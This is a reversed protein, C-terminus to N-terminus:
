VFTVLNGMAKEISFIMDQIDYIIVKSAYPTNMDLMKKTMKIDSAIRKVKGELFALKKHLKSPYKIAAGSGGSEKVSLTREMIKVGLSGRVQTRM